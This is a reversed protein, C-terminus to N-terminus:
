AAPRAKKGARARIQASRNQPPLKLQCHSSNLRIKAMWGAFRFLSPTPFVPKLGASLCFLDRRAIRGALRVPGDRPPRDPFFHPLGIRQEGPADAACSCCHVIGARGFVEGAASRIEPLAIRSARGPFERPFQLSVSIPTSGCTTRKRIVKKRM